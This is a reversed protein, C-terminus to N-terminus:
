PINRWTLTNSQLRKVIKITQAKDAYKQSIDLDGVTTASKAQPRANKEQGTPGHAVIDAHLRPVTDTTEGPDPEEWAVGTAQGGVESHAETVGEVGSVQGPTRQPFQTTQHVTQTTQTSQDSHKYKDTHQMRQKAYESTSM